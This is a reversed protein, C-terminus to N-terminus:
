LSLKSRGTKPPIRHAKQGMVASHIWNGCVSMNLLSQTPPALSILHAVKFLPPRMIPQLFDAVNRRKRKAQRRPCIVKSRTNLSVTKSSLTDPTAWTSSQNISNWVKKICMNANLRFSSQTFTFPLRLMSALYDTNVCLLFHIVCKWRLKCQPIIM